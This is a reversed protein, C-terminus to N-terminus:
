PSKCGRSGASKSSPWPTPTSGGKSEGPPCSQDSMTSRRSRTSRTSTNSNTADSLRPRAASSNSSGISPSRWHALSRIDEPSGAYQYQQENRREIEAPGRQLQVIRHKPIALPRSQPHRRSIWRRVTSPSVGAYDAVAAIDVSGRATPGYCDLLMGILRKRTWRPGRAPRIAKAPHM